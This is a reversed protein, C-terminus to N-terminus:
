REGTKKISRILVETIPDFSFGSDMFHEIYRPLTYLVREKAKMNDHFVIITGKQTYRIARSLCLESSVREDFDGPLVTWMIVDFSKKLERMQERKLRGYPPRFLRTSLIEACAAVDALFLVSSTQSGKLHSYTHNGVSHGQKNILDIIEPHKVAKSGTCFFTAKAKYENLIELIRRTVEPEPGDDFTLYIKKESAPIEWIRDRNLVQIVKPIRILYM